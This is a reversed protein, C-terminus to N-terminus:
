LLGRVLFLYRPKWEQRHAAPPLWRASGQGPRLHPRSEWPTCAPSSCDETSVAHFAVRSRVPSSEALESSLSLLQLWPMCGEPRLSCVRGCSFGSSFRLGFLVLLLVESIARLYSIPPSIAPVKGLDQQAGTTAPLGRFKVLPFELSERVLCYGLDPRLFLPTSYQSTSFSTLLQPSLPCPLTLAASESCLHSDRM